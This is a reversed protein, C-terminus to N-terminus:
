KRVTMYSSKQKEIFFSFKLLQRYIRVSDRVKRFHSCSNNKDHYITEIPVELIPVEKRACTVLVNMEYEYRQGPIELMFDLMGASFARLGTQTDSVKIGTAAQFIKRTLLNGMKSAWPIERDITRSGLVLTNPNVAAKILLKEMDDPRHQGDADMVGIVDCELGMKKIYALATKIAEGKGRNERHRLLICKEELDYFIQRHEEDSGDDVLIIQRELEWNRKVINKLGDDPNLAPIIVIRNM